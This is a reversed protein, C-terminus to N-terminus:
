SLLVPLVLEAIRQVAIRSRFSHYHERPLLVASQLSISSLTTARTSRNNDCPPADKNRDTRHKISQLPCYVEYGSIQIHRLCSEPICSTTRGIDFGAFLIEYATSLRTVDIEFKQWKTSCVYSVNNKRRPRQYSIVTFGVVQFGNVPSETQFLHVVLCRLPPMIPNHSASRRLSVPDEERYETDLLIVVFM